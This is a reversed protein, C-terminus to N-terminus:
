FGLCINAFFFLTIRLFLHTQSLERFLWLFHCDFNEFNCYITRIALALKPRDFLVVLITCLVNLRSFKSSNKCLSYFLLYCRKFVLYKKFQGFLSKLM